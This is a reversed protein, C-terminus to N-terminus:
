RSSVIELVVCRVGGEWRGDFAESVCTLSLLSVTSLQSSRVHQSSLGSDSRTRTMGDWSGDNTKEPELSM